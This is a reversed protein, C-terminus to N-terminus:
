MTLFHRLLVFAFSIITLYQLESFNLSVDVVNSYMSYKYYMCEGLTNSIESIVTCYLM